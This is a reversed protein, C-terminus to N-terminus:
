PTSCLEDDGVAAAEDEQLWATGPSLPQPCHYPSLPLPVLTPSLSQPCPAPSLPPPSPAPSLPIPVLTHLRPRLSLPHPCLTHPGGPATRHVPGGAQTYPVAWYVGETKGVSLGQTSHFHGQTRPGEQPAARQKPTASSNTIPVEAGNRRESCHQTRVGCVASTEGIGESGSERERRSCFYGEFESKESMGVGQAARRLAQSM